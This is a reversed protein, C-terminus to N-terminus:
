FEFKNIGSGIEEIKGDPMFVEATTNAPIEIEWLIKGEKRHWESRILGYPSPHAAKVGVIEQIDFDPKLIIHKFGPCKEDPRIGGLYEYYWPLLDGLLMVHNGSNMSPNATNGNWLEWITTAGSEVMYGWGPYTDVSAISYGIDGHGSESLWRMLWQMGIIGCSVHRDNKEITSIIDHELTKKEADPAVDMVLPLLNATVTGNSYKGDKLYVENIRNKIADSEALFFEVDKDYGFMDAYRAMMNCIYSYYVSSILPGDTKRDPDESHVLTLDEPPMCWDGYRDYAILGDKKHKREVFSLFKKIADYSEAMPKLDGYQRYIMDCIMPLAAPWTMNGNYLRWYAPAVDSISGDERQCQVIDKMWKSYLSYCDVVYSEGLAGTARDGLWPMREDRQPCDIPMGKYNSRIGRRANALIKGLMDNGDVTTIIMETNSDDMEDAILQRRIDEIRLSDVGSIEAYRFGYYTFEPTWWRNVGDGVYKATAEASRLNATHLTSDGKALTEAHRITVTDGVASKVHISVRGANNTGFDVIHRNGFRTISIPIESEYVCMQPTINGVMFGGPPSVVEAKKCDKDMFGPVGWGKLIKRSDFLEGDYENAYRVPGDTTINWTSDTAVIETQGDEYEIVLNALLKPFGYTTRVNTQYNQTQAFYHGGALAVGITNEDGLRDTVDYTDYAVSKTYDTPVPTLVYEGIKQGNITLSYLGLGSIHMTARKIKGSTAFDKWLYRSAIRSHRSDSEGHLLSDLGIWYGQWNHDAMLGTSWRAAGSWKSNGKNTSVRVKWFYETNPHLSEGKYVIWQSSDSKVEGSDWMNGKDMDLLAQSTAVLIRYSTQRVNNQNSNIQWGFRPHSLDLGMPDSRREVTLNSVSINTLLEHMNRAYDRVYRNYFVLAWDQDNAFPDYFHAKKGNVKSPYIFAASGRGNESFLCLNNLFINRAREAYEKKGTAESYLQYAIGTLTSWYHPFTDGWTQEKGFWYGDWHRISIDNLHFSPQKGGFSELLPLQKEAGILYKEEKTLNYMNLLHIISPAVISQEYNVEFKPYNHGNEAFIDAMSKFDALLTDAENIMGADRLLGYGYVPLDICYFSHGFKKVLARLTGYADKLYSKDGTAQYMTFWFDAIWAYNYGRNKGTFDPTSNTTYDSKQIRHVFSVFKKLSELIKHDGTRMYEQAMLIGMCVRERGEDCDSRRRGTEGNIYQHEEENDYVIYAGNRPDNERFFQQNDIIFNCRKNILSDINSVVLCDIECSKGNGYDLTYVYEGPASAIESYSIGSGNVKALLKGNRSISGKQIGANLFSLRITDGSEVVYREAYAISLNNEMAKSKFDSWDKAPFLLWQLKYSKGPKLYIDEPNMRFVGRFNSMGKKQDRESVEYGKLNGHTLILALGEPQGNMRTCFVYSDSGAAWIHANCRGAYCTAADPYNDNFTTNIAIDTLAIGKKGINKFSYTEEFNGAKDYRRVVTIQVPGVIYTANMGSKFSELKAPVSWSYEKGDVSMNGLGWGYKGDVWPYQRGNPSLIWNMVSDNSLSLDTLAGTTSDSKFSIQNAATAEAFAILVMTILHLKKMMVNLNVFFNNRSILSSVFNISINLLLLYPYQKKLIFQNYHTSKSSYVVNKGEDFMM